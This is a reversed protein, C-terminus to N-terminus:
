SKFAIEKRCDYLRLMGQDSLVMIWDWCQLLPHDTPWVQSVGGSHYNFIVYFYNIEIINNNEGLLM